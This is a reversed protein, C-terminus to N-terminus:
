TEILRMLEYAVKSSMAISSQFHLRSFLHKPKSQITKMFTQEHYVHREFLNVQSAITSWALRLNTSFIVKLQSTLAMKM